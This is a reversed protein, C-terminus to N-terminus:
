RCTGFGGTGSVANESDRIESAMETMNRIRRPWELCKGLRRLCNNRSATVHRGSGISVSKVEELESESEGKVFGMVGGKKTRLLIALLVYLPTNIIVHAVRSPSASLSLLLLHVLSCDRGKEIENHAACCKFFFFADEHHFSSSYYYGYRSFPLSYSM